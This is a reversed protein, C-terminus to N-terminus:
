EVSSGGRSTVILVLSRIVIGAGILTFIFPILAFFGASVLGALRVQLREQSTDGVFSNIQDAAWQKEEYGSSYYSTVPTVGQRTDLEVRYTCSDDCSEGVWAYEVRHITDRSLPLFSLVSLQRECDVQQPEIRTCDLTTTLAMIFLFLGGCAMFIVGMLISVFRDGM